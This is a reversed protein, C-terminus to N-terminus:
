NFREYNYIAVASFWYYDFSLIYMMQNEFSKNLISLSNTIESRPFKEFYSLHYRFAM